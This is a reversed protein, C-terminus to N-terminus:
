VRLDHLEQGRDRYRRVRPEVLLEWGDCYHPPVVRAVELSHTDEAESIIGVHVAEAEVAVHMRDDAVPVAQYHAEFVLEDDV